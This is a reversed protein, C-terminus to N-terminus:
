VSASWLESEYISSWSSGTRNLPPITDNTNM